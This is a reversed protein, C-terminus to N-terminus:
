SDNAYIWGVLDEKKKEYNKKYEELESNLRSKTADYNINGDRLGNDEM